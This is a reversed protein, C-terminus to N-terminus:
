ASLSSLVQQFGGGNYVQKCGVQQLYQQVQGSRAGSACFLVIPGDHNKLQPVADMIEHMPIHDAGPVRSEAVEQATRVDILLTNENQLLEKL